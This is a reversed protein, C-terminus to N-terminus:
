DVAQFAEYDERNRFEFVSIVIIQTTNMQQSIQDRIYQQAPFRNGTICLNGFGEPHAYSVFFYRM